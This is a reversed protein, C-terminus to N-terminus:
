IGDKRSDLYYKNLFMDYRNEILYDLNKAIKEYSTKLVLQEAQSFNSLVYNAADGPFPSRGIGIKFKIYSKEIHADLSKIGNHGASGGGVKIKVSNFALDMDDFFVIIKSSPIKYFAAIESVAIGSRNM